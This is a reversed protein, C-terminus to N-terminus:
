LRVRGAGSIAGDVEHRVFEFPHQPGPRDHQPADPQQHHGPHGRRHQQDQQAAAARLIRGLEVRQLGGGADDDAGPAGGGQQEGRPPLSRGLQLQHLLVVVGGLAPDGLHVALGGVLEAAVLRRDPQGPQVRQFPEGGPVRLM